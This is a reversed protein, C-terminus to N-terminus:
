KQQEIKSTLELGFDPNEENLVFKNWLTL